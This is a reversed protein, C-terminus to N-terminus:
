KWADGHISCRARQPQLKIQALQLQRDDIVAHTVMCLGGPSARPASRLANRYEMSAQSGCCQRLVSWYKMHEFVRRAVSVCVRM